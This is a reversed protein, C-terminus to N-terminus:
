AYWYCDDGGVNDKQAADDHHTLTASVLMHLTNSAVRCEDRAVFEVFALRMEVCEEVVPMGGRTRADAGRADLLLQAVISVVDSEGTAARVQECWQAADQFLRMVSPPSFALLTTVMTSAFVEDLLAEHAGAPWAMPHVFRLWVRLSVFPQGSLFCSSVFQELRDVSLAPNRAFAHAVVKSGLSCRLPRLLSQLQVCKHVLSRVGEFPVLGDQLLAAAASLVTDPTQLLEDPQLALILRRPLGHIRIKVAHWNALLNEIKERQQKSSAVCAAEEATWQWVRCQVFGFLLCM